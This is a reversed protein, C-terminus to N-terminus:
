LKWAGPPTRLIRQLWCIFLFVTPSLVINALFNPLKTYQKLKRRSTAASASLDLGNLSRYLKAIQGDVLRADMGQNLDIAYGSGILRELQAIGFHSALINNDM